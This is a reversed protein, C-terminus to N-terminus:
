DLIHFLQFLGFTTVKLLAIIHTTQRFKFHLLKSSQYGKIAWPEWAEEFRRRKEREGQNEEIRM